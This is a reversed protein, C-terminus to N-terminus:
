LYKEAYGALKEMDATCPDGIMMRVTFSASSVLRRLVAAMEADACLERQVQDLDRKM